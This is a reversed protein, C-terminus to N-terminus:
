RPPPVKVRLTVVRVSVLLIILVILPPKVLDFWLKPAVAVAVPPPLPAFREVAVEWARACVWRLDLM